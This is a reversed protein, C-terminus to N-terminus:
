ISAAYISVFYVTGKTPSGTVYVRTGQDLVLIGGSNSRNSMVDYLVFGGAPVIDMDDVGNTSLIVDVDTTNVFKILRSPNELATGIGAYTGSIDAFGISRLDEWKMRQANLYM